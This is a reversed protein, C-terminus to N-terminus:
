IIIFKFIYERNLIIMIIHSGTKKTLFIKTVM